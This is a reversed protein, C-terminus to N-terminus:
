VALKLPHQIGMDCPQAIGTTGAPVFHYHIWDFNKDLWTHFTVSHHVVWVDLQLICPQDLPVNLHHKKETWFPVLMATVYSCMTEFTSFQFKLKTADDFGMAKPSLLSRNSKGQLIIQFPLLDGDNSAGCVLTCACKEEQGAVAVQRSSLKEYTYNNVPQYIINTQDINVHFTGSTIVDDCVTLALRLFQELCVDEVNTPLKQTAHTAKWLTYKL